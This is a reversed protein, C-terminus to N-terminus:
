QEVVCILPMHCINDFMTEERDISKASWTTIGTGVLLCDLLIHSQLSKSFINHYKCSRMLTIFDVIHILKEEREQYLIFARLKRLCFSGLQYLIINLLIQKKKTLSLISSISFKCLLLIRQIRSNKVIESQGKSRWRNAETLIGFEFIFFCKFTRYRNTLNSNQLKYECKNFFCCKIISNEKYILKYVKDISTVLLKEGNM